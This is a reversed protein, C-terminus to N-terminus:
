CLWVNVSLKFSEKHLRLKKENGQYLSGFNRFECVQPRVVTGTEARISRFIKITQNISITKNIEMKIFSIDFIISWEMIM